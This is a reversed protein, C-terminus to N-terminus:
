YPRYSKQEALMAALGPHAGLARELAPWLVEAERRVHVLKEPDKIRESKRELITHKDVLEGWSVAVLMVM